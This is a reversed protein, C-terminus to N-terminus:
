DNLLEKIRPLADEAAAVGADMLAQVDSLDAYSFQALDPQILVDADHRGEQSVQSFLLFFSQTTVEFLNDPVGYGTRDANLDVAIVIDAGMDRVRVSPVNETVGGDVLARGDELVPEFIGPVSSSAHVARGVPGSDFVVTEAHALDTAIVKFPIELDEFQIDGVLKEVYEELQNGKVVGLGSFTPQVLEGWGIDQAVDLIKKWPQGSCFLAGIVSGVSVGAAYHIPIDNEAIVKLVGIHAIGRAGGGGLALGLKKDM